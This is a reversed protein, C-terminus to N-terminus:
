RWDTVLGLPVWGMGILVDLPSVYHQRMLAAEAATEVRRELKSGPQMSPLSGEAVGSLLHTALAQASFDAPELDRNGRRRQYLSSKYQPSQSTRSCGSTSAHNRSRHRVSGIVASRTASAISTSTSCPGARPRGNTSRNFPLM